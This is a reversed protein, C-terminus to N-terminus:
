QNESKNQGYITKNIMGFLPVNRRFLAILNRISERINYKIIGATSDRSYGKYAIIRERISLM